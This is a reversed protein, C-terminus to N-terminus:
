TRTARDGKEIDRHTQKNQKRRRRRYCFVVALGAATLGFTSPEPAAGLREAFDVDFTFESNRTVQFEDLSPSYTKVNIQDNAPDFEILQMWGEGGQPRRQYNAVMEFVDFGDANVVTQHGEGPNHGSLVMFVQSNDDILDYFIADGSGTRGGFPSLYDHTTVITPVDPNANLVSRAWSLSSPRPRWELTIHLYDHGDATFRQYHNLQDPSSGGYWPRGSYRSEGFYRVYQEARSQSNVWDYDHNGLVAGYPLDPADSDLLGMAADAINWEAANGDRGSGGNEVLDGVHSVLVINQEARNNVIWDTQALFHEPFSESYYQTDPLVAITFPAGSLLGPLMVFAVAVCYRAAARLAGLGADRVAAMHCM